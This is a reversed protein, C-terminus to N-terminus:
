RVALLWALGLIATSSAVVPFAAVIAARPRVRYLAVHVAVLCAAGAAAVWVFEPRDVVAAAAASALLPGSVIASWCALMARPEGLRATLTAVGTARDGAIDPLTQALHVGIVALGGLPYLWLLRPDFTELATWVWIPLLPLAVLYPAWSFAGRKFWLDYALGCGTGLTSLLLAAPGLAASTIIMLVLGIATIVYAHSVPVLGSPIPKSPKAIADADVDVIENVAGIALQGGFMAALILLLLDFEPPGGSVLLACGLTTAM